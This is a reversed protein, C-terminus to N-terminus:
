KQEQIQNAIKEDVQVNCGDLKLKKLWTIQSPTLKFNPNNDLYLYKLKKLNTIDSQLKELDNKSLDLYVLNKQLHGITPFVTLKNNNLYLHTLHKFRHFIDPLKKIKNNDLRLVTLYEFKEIERPLIDLNFGNLRFYNESEQNHTYNIEIKFNINEINSNEKIELKNIFDKIVIRDKM